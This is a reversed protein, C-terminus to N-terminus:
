PPIGRYRCAAADIIEEHKEEIDSLVVILVPTTTGFVNTHYSLFSHFDLHINYFRTFM